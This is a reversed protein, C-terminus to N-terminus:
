RDPRDSDVLERVAAMVLEPEDLQVWHSSRAAVIHKGAHSADALTRQIDIHEQPQNASSIVITPIKAPSVVRAIVGGDRELAALHDAMAHYCKPESWFAQMVPYTGPPLKRVESVLRGLTQAVTNGFLRSFRQPAAPAGGVLLALLARPIGVHALVAGIRALYQARRLRYAREADPKLWEVAPDVLVLGAVADPHRMAYGRVIFSGFSHGVLICREGPAVRATVTAFEEVIRDFTRPCSPVDSWALGARDYTCARTFQAVSPAVAAWSLSSAAIGAELVVAPRGTGSCTVHLRHGGVDILEGPAPFRRSAARSAARQYLMGAVILAALVGVILGLQQIYM